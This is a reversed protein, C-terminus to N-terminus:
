GIFVGESFLVLKCVEPALRIQEGNCDLIFEEAQVYRNDQSNAASPLSFKVSLVALVGLSHQQVNLTELVTDLHQAHKLLVDNAKSLGDLLERFTGSVLVFNRDCNRVVYGIITPAVLLITERM